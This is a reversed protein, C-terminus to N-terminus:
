GVRFVVSRITNDGLEQKLKRLIMGKMSELNFKLTPQVMHVVLVGKKFSAVTTQKAIFAGAAAIWAQKISEEDQGPTIGVRELLADM